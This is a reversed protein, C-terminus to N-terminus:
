EPIVKYYGASDWATIGGTMNIVHKFGQDLMYQQARSSRGGAKCYVVYTEDPDLEAVQQNFQDGNIDIHLAEAHITGTAVEDPTRVDVIIPAEGTLLMDQLEDVSIDTAEAVVVEEVQDAEESTRIEAHADKKHKCSFFVLLLCLFINNLTM